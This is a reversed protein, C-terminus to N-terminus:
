PPEECGSGYRRRRARSATAGPPPTYVRLLGSLSRAISFESRELAAVPDPVDARRRSASLVAEAWAEPPDGTSRWTFLEPIVVLERTVSDSLVIPLGAAQAELGVLPLGERHSPLVFVDFSRLLRPVDARVGAFVIRERVGLRVAEGEVWARLPGDGVLVIVARPERRIAAAAIRVLLEHNKQPDFRGVHGIVLADSPVGLEARVASADVRERFAGFDLGYRVVSWRPDEGWRSGFLAAAAPASPALGKTAFRRLTAEMCRLYVRRRLGAEEDLSKTDLHSHAIRIPVGASRALALIFGSFHHVHSHVVDYPGRELLTALLRRAFGIPRSPSLECVLIASGLARIEADYHGPADRTVLFDARVRSPDLHRLVQMLWTEAGGRNMQAVVHLVRVPAM